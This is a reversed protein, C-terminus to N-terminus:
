QRDGHRTGDNVRHHGIVAARGSHRRRYERLAPQARRAARWWDPQQGSQSLVGNQTNVQPREVRLSASSTAKSRIGAATDLLIGNNSFGTISLGRITSAGGTVNLGSVGQAASTGAIQIQIVANTGVPATNAASGPQTYGDIITPASVAPLASLPQIVHPGANPIAFSILSGSEIQATTLAQRLSGAGSDATNIVVLSTPSTVTISVTVANSSGLSDSVAHYVFSDLGSYGPNPQYTFSGDAVPTL